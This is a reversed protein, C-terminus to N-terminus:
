QLRVFVRVFTFVTIEISEFFTKEDNKLKFVYRLVDQM